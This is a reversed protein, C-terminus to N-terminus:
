FGNKTILYFKKFVIKDVFLINPLEGVINEVSLDVPLGRGSDECVKLSKKIAKQSVGSSYTREM